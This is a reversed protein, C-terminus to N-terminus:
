SDKIIKIWDGPRPESRPYDGNILRLQNEADPLPLDQALARYTMGPEAQIWHLRMAWDGSGPGYAIGEMVEMFRARVAEPSAPSDAPGGDAPDGEASAHGAPDGEAPDHEAPEREVPELDAAAAIVEQLRKDHRPHTSFLGHYARPRRGARKASARDYQQKDKLVWIVELMANPDYGAQHLYAAGESDAELEHERGYGRVLTMGYQTSASALSGSGTLIYTIQAMASNAFQASKQRVAHRATVHGVEHALVAALEAESDLYAMLGRNIYIYGGPFAFANIDESDIVTFTYKIDPRASAKVIRQGVQNVYAQVKENQYVVSEDAILEEHMERGLKIEGRQSM